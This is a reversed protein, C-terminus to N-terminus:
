EVQGFYNLTDNAMGQSMLAIKYALEAEYQATDIMGSLLQMGLTVMNSNINQNYSLANSYANNYNSAALSAIQEQFAANATAVSEDYNALLKAAETENEDSNYVGRSALNAALSKLSEDRATALKSLGLEYSPTYQETLSDIFSDYSPVDITDPAYSSAMSMVDDWISSFDFEYPKYEPASVPAAAPPVNAPTSLSDPLTYYGYAGGSQKTAGTSNWQIDPYLETIRQGDIYGQGNIMEVNQTNGGPLTLSAMPNYSGTSAVSTSPASNNVSLNNTTPTSTTTTGGLPTFYNSVNTGQAAANAEMQAKQADTVTRTFGTDPNLYTYTAM